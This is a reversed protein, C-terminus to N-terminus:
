GIQGLGTTNCPTTTVLTSSGASLGHQVEDWQGGRMYGVQELGEAPGEKTNTTHHLGNESPKRVLQIQLFICPPM